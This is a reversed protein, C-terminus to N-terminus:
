VKPPGKKVAPKSTPKSGTPKSTAGAKKAETISGNIKYDSFTLTTSGVSQEGMTQKEVVTGYLHFKGVKKNKISVDGHFAGMPTDLDFSWGMRVHKGGIKEYKVAIIADVDGVTADSVQITFKRGVGDKDYHFEKYGGKTKGGVTIITADGKKKATLETGKLGARHSDAIFMRDFTEQSWGRTTLMDGLGANDWKLSGKKGNFTYKGTAEADGLPSKASVKVTFSVTKVGARGLHYEMAEWRDLTARSLADMKIDHTSKKNKTPRSTPTQASAAIALCCIALTTAAKM